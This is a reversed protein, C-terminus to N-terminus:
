VQGKHIAPTVFTKTEYQIEFVKDFNLVAAEELATLRSNIELHSHANFTETLTEEGYPENGPLSAIHIFTWDAALDVEWTWRQLAELTVLNGVITTGGSILNVTHDENESYSLPYSTGGPSSGGGFDIQVIKGFQVDTGKIEVDLRM